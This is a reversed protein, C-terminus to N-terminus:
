QREAGFAPIKKRNNPRRRVRPGVHWEAESTWSGGTEEGQRRDGPRSFLSKPFVAHRTPSQCWRINQGGFKWIPRTQWSNDKKVPPVHRGTFLIPVAITPNKCLLATNPHAAKYTCKVTKEAIDSSRTMHPKGISLSKSFPSSFYPPFFPRCHLWTVDRTASKPFTGLKQSRPSISVHTCLRAKINKTGSVDFHSDVQSYLDNNGRGRKKRIRWTPTIWFLICPLKPLRKKPRLRTEGM